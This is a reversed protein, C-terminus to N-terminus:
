SEESEEDPSDNLKDLNLPVFKLYDASIFKYLVGNKEGEFLRRQANGHLHGYVCVDVKNAELIESFGTKPYMSSLPPYHLMCIHRKTHEPDMKNLADMCLGLRIIERDYVKRDEESFGSEYPLKWGRTGTILSGEVEIVNNRAIEITSLGFSAFTEEMKKVTTWFYDHNGRSIIKHGPLDDIFKFDDYGDKMYMVWSLDGPMLVTDDPKVNAEFGAKIREIYNSWSHGFLEMSKEPNSIALHLDSMAWITM